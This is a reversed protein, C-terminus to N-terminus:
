SLMDSLGIGQGAAAFVLKDNDQLLEVVDVLNDVDGLPEKAVQAPLDIKLPDREEGGGAYTDAQKGLVGPISLAQQTTGIGRDMPSLFLAAIGILKVGRVHSGLGTLPQFQFGLQAPREPFLLEDEIVLRLDVHGRAPADTGFGQHPPNM